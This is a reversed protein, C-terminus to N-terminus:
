YNAAISLRGGLNSLDIVEIEGPVAYNSSGDNEDHFLKLKLDPGLQLNWINFERIPRGPPKHTVTMNAYM